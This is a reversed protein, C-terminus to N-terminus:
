GLSQKNIQGPYSQCQAFNLGAPEIINGVVKSVIWRFLSSCNSLVLISGLDVEEALATLVLYRGRYGLKRLEFPM